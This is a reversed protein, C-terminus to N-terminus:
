PLLCVVETSSIPFRNMKSVEWNLSRMRWNAEVRWKKLTALDISSYNFLYIPLYSPLSFFFLFTLSCGHHIHTPSLRTLCLPSSVKGRFQICVCQHLLRLCSGVEVSSGGGERKGCKETLKPLYPRDPLLPLLFPGKDRRKDRSLHGYVVVTFGTRARLLQRYWKWLSRHTERIREKPCTLPLPHPCSSWHSHM